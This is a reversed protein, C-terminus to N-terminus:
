QKVRVDSNRLEAGRTKPMPLARSPVDHCDAVNGCVECKGRSFMYGEPWENRKRCADCYFM